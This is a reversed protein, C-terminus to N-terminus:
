GRPHFAASLLARIEALLPALGDPPPVQHRNCHHAIQNVNVGIKRLQQALSLVGPEAPAAIMERAKRSRAKLARSRLFDGVTMGSREAKDLLTFHEARSLRFSVHHSRVDKTKTPRGM